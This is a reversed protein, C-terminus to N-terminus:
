SRQQWVQVKVMTLSRRTQTICRMWAGIGAHMGILGLVIAGLFCLLSLGLLKGYRGYDMAGDTMGGSYRCVSHGVQPRNQACSDSEVGLRRAGDPM